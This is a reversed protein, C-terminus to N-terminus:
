GVEVCGHFAYHLHLQDATRLSADESRAQEPHSIPQFHTLKEVLSISQDPIKQLFLYPFDGAGLSLSGQM